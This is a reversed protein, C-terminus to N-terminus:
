LALPAAYGTLELYGGGCPRAAESARVAGEWYITGTSARADLEQDDFWPEIEFRRGGLRLALAVPYQAGTRPSRWVRRPTFQVAGPPLTSRRLAADRLTAAAWLPGGGRDRMVFAMLAGGDDLNIGLWDWGVADQALVESSWEHDLWANGTVELSGSSLRLRGGAALQPVSYYYSAQHALAGKRSYGDEGQLLVPQTAACRLELGFERAAIRTVYADGVHALSWDGIWARTTELATGALDFAARAARQDHLLRSASADSVAAHALVLQRAAFRSPNGEAVRPRSRFFTVQFGFRRGDRAELRGTLYWWETRFDPHAGHDRPFRLAKGPLVTPYPDAARVPSVAGLAAVALFARRKL